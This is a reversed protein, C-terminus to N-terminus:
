AASFLAYTIVFVALAGVIKKM